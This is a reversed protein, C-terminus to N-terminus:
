RSQGHLFAEMHFRRQATGYGGPHGRPHGRPRGRPRGVPCADRALCGADLCADGAPGQLHRVCASVDYAGPAFAGAPCATLCPRDACTDCPSPRGDRPPLDLRTGILLAARYAHWLGLDPHILPGIPSPHVAESRM